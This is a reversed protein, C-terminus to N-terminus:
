RSIKTLRWVRIATGVSEGPRPLFEAVLEGEKELEEFFTTLEPARERSAGFGSTVVYDVRAARAPDLGSRVDLSPTDSQARSVLGPATWLDKASRQLRLVRWGGGPHTAAMGRYLRARPSGAAQAREALESVQSLSMRVLPGAHAQDLLLTAGGPVNKALWDGAITRTDPLCVGRVYMGSQILAPALLLVAVATKRWLARGEWLKVAGESALLALGPFVALLYRMWGGDPSAALVGAQAAVPLFVLLALRWDRALMVWLGFLAFLGAFGGEGGFSWVHLLVQKAIEGQAQYQFLRMYSMESVSEWFLPFDLVIFPSALVFAGAACALSVGLDKFRVPRALLHALPLVLLAPAATYQTSLSAGFFVGALISARRGQGRYARLAQWWGCAALLFMLADPKAAHALEVLVPAFLLLVAGWPVERRGQAAVGEARAVAWCGALTAAASLARGILYFGTPAWAYLGVFDTVSKRLGFASWVLFYVGYHFALLYPWLTPYKFAYPKLSGGGFSVALNVLHPEDANFTHPLGYGIGALRLGVAAAVAAAGWLLAARTM